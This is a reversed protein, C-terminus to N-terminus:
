QLAGSSHTTSFHSFFIRATKNPQPMSGWGFLQCATLQVMLIFSDKPMVFYLQEDSNEATEKQTRNSLIKEQSMGVEHSMDSREIKGFPRLFSCVGEM